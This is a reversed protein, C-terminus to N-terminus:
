NQNKCVCTPFTLSKRDHEISKPKLYTKLTWQNRYREITLRQIVPTDYQQKQFFNQRTICTLTVKSNMDTQKLSFQM